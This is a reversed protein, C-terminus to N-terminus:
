VQGRLIVGARQLDRAPVYVFRAGGDGLESGGIVRRGLSAIGAEALRQRILEAEPEGLATAVVCLPAEGHLRNRPRGEAGAARRGSGGIWGLFRRWAPPTSALM